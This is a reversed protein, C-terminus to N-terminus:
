TAWDCKIEVEFAASRQWDFSEDRKWYQLVKVPVSNMTPGAPCCGNNPPDGYHITNGEIESSLLLVKKIMRDIQRTSMAVCFSANCNQCRIELLVVEDAYVDSRQDPSFECYRPVANEDWWAPEGLKEIIDAYYHNM